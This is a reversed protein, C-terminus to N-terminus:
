TLYLKHSFHWKHIFLHSSWLMFIKKVLQDILFIMLNQVFLFYLSGISLGVARYNSLNITRCDWVCCILSTRQIIWQFVCKAFHNLCRVLCINKRRKEIKHLLTSSDVCVWFILSLYNFWVDYLLPTGYWTM